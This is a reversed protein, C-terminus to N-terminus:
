RWSTFWYYSKDLWLPVPLGTWHPLYYLFVVLCILLYPLIFKPARRLVYATAIVLFPVSPLYHYLFMIRPSAAWPVFFALYSFVVLALKKNREVFAISASIVVSALGLWFVFPNGMAYIRSVVGGVEDSTYLYIPRLLFPWSWWPSTYPHTARLNTHYWWMQKQMGWFTDLGHGTLFMPTYTLLYVSIPLVLFWLYSYRVKKKLVIQIVFLIPLVWLASWKSSIAFGYALIALFNKDKIFLFITLLSFFLLYSDNMGIRSMVLPLGDLSFAAGALLGVLDDNFLKKAILIVLWVSGVGLLAGPIRWGFSNEGFVKMGFFMGLKALPPHTWEYAFGEPPTNWWEWAKPDNHLIVRATFAHYVEDFYENPPSNLSIVRTLFAFTLIGIFLLKSIGPGLSIKPFDVKPTDDTNRFSIKSFIRNLKEDFKLNDWFLILLFSLLLAVGVISALQGTLDQLAIVKLFNGANEYYSYPHYLNILSLFSIIGYIGVLSKSKKIGAGCLLFALAPFLYREHVRTPFIFFALSSLAFVLYTVGNDDLTRRFKYFIAFLSISLLAVGWNFYSMGFLIGSDPKWMGPITWINFAFVSTYHYYNGMKAVLNPLGMLPNAPFFPLSVLFVTVLGGVFSIMAGKISTRKITLIALAPLIAVAQPKILFSIAWFTGSLLPNRKEVLFFASLFLFLALIGDIQGWVSGDFIVVPNLTYLFFSITALRMSEKKIVTWLLGGLIIDALVTPIKIALENVLGLKGILWLWYLFGPTYQTWVVDSYFKALGGDRLRFAWALWTGM